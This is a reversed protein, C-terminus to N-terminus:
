QLANSVSSFNSNGLDKLACTVSIAANYSDANVGLVFGSGDGVNTLSAYYVSPGTMSASVPTFRSGTTFFIGTLIDTLVFVDGKPTNTLTITVINDQLNFLASASLLDSSGSFSISSASAVPVSAGVVILIGLLLLLALSNKM